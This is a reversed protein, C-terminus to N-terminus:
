WGLRGCPFSSFAWAVKAARYGNWSPPCASPLGTLHWHLLHNLRGARGFHGDSSDDARVEAWLTLFFEGLTVTDSAEDASRNQKV